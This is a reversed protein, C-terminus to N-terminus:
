NTPLQWEVGEWYVGLRQKKISDIFSWLIECAGIAEEDSDCGNIHELIELTLRATGEATATM